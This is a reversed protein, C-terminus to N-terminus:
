SISLKKSDSMSTDDSAGDDQKDNNSAPNDNNAQEPSNNGTMEYHLKLDSLLQGYQDTKAGTDKQSAFGYKTDAMLLM